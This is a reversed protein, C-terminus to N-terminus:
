CLGSVFLLVLFAGGCPLREHGVEAIHGARDRVELGTGAGGTYENTQKNAQTQKGTQKIQGTRETTLSRELVATSVFLGLCLCNYLLLCVLLCVLLCIVSRFFLCGKFCVLLCALVCLLM